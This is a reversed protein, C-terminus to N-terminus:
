RQGSPLSLPFFPSLFYVTLPGPSNQNRKQCGLVWVELTGQTKEAMSSKTTGSCGLSKNNGVSM